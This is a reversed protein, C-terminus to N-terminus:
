SFAMGFQACELFLVNWFLCMGFLACESFPLNRFLCMGFFCMGSSACELFPVNWFSCMGFLACEWIPVNGFADSFVKQVFFKTWSVRHPWPAKLVTLGFSHTTSVLSYIHPHYGFLIHLSRSWHSPVFPELRFLWKQLIFELRNPCHVSCQLYRLAIFFLLFHTIQTCRFVFHIWVTNKNSKRSM